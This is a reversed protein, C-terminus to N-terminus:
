GGTSAKTSPKRQAAFWLVVVLVVLIIIPVAIGIVFALVDRTLAYVVVAVLIVVGVGLAIKWRAGHDSRTSPLIQRSALTGAIRLGGVALKRKNAGLAAVPLPGGQNQDLNDLVFEAGRDVLEGVRDHLATARDTARETGEPSRTTQAGSDYSSVAEALGVAPQGDAANRVLPRTGPRAVEDTPRRLMRLEEGLIEWQRRAVLVDRITTIAPDRQTPDALAELEEEIQAVRPEFFDSMQAHVDSPTAPVALQRIIALEAKGVVRRARLSSSTVLLDVLTPVADLRGWLWDNSRWEPLLFASFNNLENGALKLDVHIGRQTAPDTNKPDWWKEQAKAAALLATFTSAIVFRNAASLRHFEIASQCPAGAVFEPYCLVELDRLTSEDIAESGGLCEGLVRGSHLSGEPTSAPTQARLQEAIEILVRLLVSRVDDDATLTTPAAADRGDLV